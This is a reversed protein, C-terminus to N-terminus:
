FSIEKYVMWTDPRPNFALNSSKDLAYLQEQYYLPVVGVQEMFLRNVLQVWQVFVDPDEIEQAKQLVSDVFPYSMGAGNSAGYGKEADVTHFITFYTRSYSYAGDFWGLFYFDLTHTNREPWFIAKPKLDLNVTIGVKALYIAVAECVEVGRTYRDNPASLRIEFGDPYGAEALLEKAREPDYPLREIEPNYGVCAPDAVQSAPSGHGYLVKDILEDIDIAMEIAQRVRVNSTPFGEDNRLGLYMARRDPRRVVEINPNTVISDYQELPLNQVIDVEGSLLAAIRTSAETITKQIITKIPPVGGWYDENAVLKIYAGKVWEVFKYAGTGIPNLGVDGVSRAETSEKDMIWIQPINQIYYSVPQTMTIDITWPDGNVTEVSKTMGGMWNFDSVEPDSLRTFTFKVDEWTFDNGNHFKVGQRLHFRWTTSDIKEWSTALAPGLKGTYDRELLTDFINASVSYNCDAHAGQPNMTRPGSAVATILTDQAKAFGNVAPSLALVVTLLGAVMILVSKQMIM